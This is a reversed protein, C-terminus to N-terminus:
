GVGNGGALKRRYNFFTATCGGEQELVGQGARRHQRLRRQGAARRRYAELRDYSTLHLLKHPHGAKASRSRGPLARHRKQSVPM